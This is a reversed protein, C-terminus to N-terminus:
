KIAIKSTKAGHRMIYIGPTLCEISDAIKNGNLDYYEKSINANDPESDPYMDLVIEEAGSLDYAQISKFNCWPQIVRCKEVAESPVFLTAHAYVKSTFIDSYSSGIPDTAEYYVEKINDCRDFVANYLYTLSASLTVSTLDKCQIFAGTYIKSAPIKM